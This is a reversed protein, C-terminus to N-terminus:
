LKFAMEEDTLLAVREGMRYGYIVSYTLVSEVYNRTEGYPITEIWIDFPVPADASRQLWQKVRNPGANYAAAALIRNGDFDKLLGSLYRAGLTINTEPILLDQNSIRMGMGAATERGTAPMLQMLGLAGAPSRVDQMFASEQRAIAYILQESLGQEKATNRFTDAYALPFRLQLDDWHQIRIMAQIANRHWGWSEALKGSAMTQEQNMNATAFQWESRAAQEDGLVYLEHARDIAPIGYLADVQAQTVGVAQEAMDYDVGLQMSAIFGFYSRTTALAIRLAQAEELAARGGKEQLARIRWYQWRESERAEAPLHGLWHEVRTWDQARLADRVIWAVLSETALQPTQMLLRESEEVQGQVQLRQLAYRQLSYAEDESLSLPAVYEHVLNLARSPESIALQRLGYLVIEKTEPENGSFSDVEDLARPNRDVDLFRQAFLAEREPMLKAIYRALSNQGAGITKSFRQWAIDASLGDASLWTDFLPDCSNPQSRSVNWLAAVEAMASLDGEHLRAELAYCQLATTSNAPNYYRVVDAWREQLALLNVWTREMREALYTEPHDSLFADVPANDGGPLVLGAVEPALATYDLYVRLPYDGLQAYLTQYEEARGALWAEQAALYLERQAERGEPAGQAQLTAALLLCVIAPAAIRLRTLTSRM